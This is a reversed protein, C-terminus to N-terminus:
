SKELIPMVSVASLRSMIQSTFDVIPVIRAYNLRMPGIVGVAGILRGTDDRYPSFITSWSQRDFFRNDSGIFIQVGDGAAVLDLIKLMNEEEELLTLIGRAKELNGMEHADHLLHSQGRVIINGGSGTDIGVILGQEVLHATLTSLNTKHNRIDALIDDRADFLTKGILKANLFNSAQELTSADITHTTTIIRNEIVGDQLVMIVLVRSPELPLFQIHKIPKNIKPSIVVSLCSSLESLVASAREYTDQVALHPNYANELESQDKASLQGVQMLGNVYLRLGQETPLRGASIHPSHILDMQELDSMINRITAPSLSHPLKQSLTRSGMPNGTELFEEVIIRFIDRTRDNFDSLM